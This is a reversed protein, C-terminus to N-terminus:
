ADLDMFAQNIVSALQEPKNYKVKAYIDMTIKSNEHGALYQVTKPDIGKYILNTIYTHRLQHPTVEFDLSYVVKSNHAAKQGLVPSVTHVEKKGDKYRVYSREKVTRTEIYDWVRKFQTGSLPQGQRNAIVFESNSCARADILCEILQPPLPIDRRAANTKLESLIVPRNNEIHWARQVSLYPTKCDLHVCDWKLGLIEERRLGAYLGLMVFVYPPLGKTTELLQNAQEDTLAEKKKQPKGGKSSLKKCPSVDIINSEEASEFISKYLMQVSHYISESKQSAPLIAIKVDDATIDSMYRHGLPAIIYNKVKSTYDNLTTVRLNASKMLLWKECYEKVTPHARRFKADKIQQKAELVKDFLEEPTKAYLSVYKEDADLIRTRYYVNGRITTTGYEPISKKRKAM